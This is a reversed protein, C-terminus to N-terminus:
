MQILKRIKSYIAILSRRITLVITPIKKTNLILVMYYNLFAYGFMYTGFIFVCVILFIFIFDVLLFYFLLFIPTCGLVARPWLPAFGYSAEFNGL